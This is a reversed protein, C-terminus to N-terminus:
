EEYLAVRKCAASEWIWGASSTDPDGVMLIRCESANAQLYLTATGWQYPITGGGGERWTMRSTSLLISLWSRLAPSRAFM